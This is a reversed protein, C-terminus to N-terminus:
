SSLPFTLPNGSTKLWSNIKRNKINQFCRIKHFNPIRLDGTINFLHPCTSSSTSPWCQPFSLSNWSWQKTNELDQKECSKYTFVLKSSQKNQYINCNRYWYCTRPLRSVPHANSLFPLINIQLDANQPTSRLFWAPVHVFGHTKWDGYAYRYSGVHMEQFRHTQAWLNLM